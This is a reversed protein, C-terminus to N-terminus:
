NLEQFASCLAFVAFSTPNMSWTGLIRNLNREQYKENTFKPM